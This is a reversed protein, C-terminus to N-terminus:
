VKNEVLTHDDSTGSVATKAASTRGLGHAPLWPIPPAKAYPRRRLWLIQMKEAFLLNPM